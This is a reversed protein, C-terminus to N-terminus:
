SRTREGVGKANEGQYPFGAAELGLIAIWRGFNKWHVKKIGSQTRPLNLWASKAHLFLDSEVPFNWDRCEGADDPVGEKLVDVKRASVNSAGAVGRKPQAVEEVGKRKPVRGRGVQGAVGTPDTSDRAESRGRKPERARESGSQGKEKPQSGSKAWDKLERLLEEDLTEELPVENKGEASENRM